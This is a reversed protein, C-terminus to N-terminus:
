TAVAISSCASRNKVPSVARALHVSILTSTSCGRHNKLDRHMSASYANHSKLVKSATYVIESATYVIERVRPCSMSHRRSTSSCRITSMTGLTTLLRGPPIRAGVSPVCPCNGTKRLCSDPGELAHLEQRAQLLNRVAAMRPVAPMPVAIAAHV